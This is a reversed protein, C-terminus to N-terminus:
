FTEKDRQKLDDGNAVQVWFGKRFKERSANRGEGGGWRRRRQESQLLCFDM